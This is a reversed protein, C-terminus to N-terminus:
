KKKFKFKLGLLRLVKHNYENKISFIKQIFSPKIRIAILQEGIYNLQGRMYNLENKLYEVQSNMLEINFENQQEPPLMKYIELFYNLKSGGQNIYWENMCNRFNNWSGFIDKYTIAATMCEQQLNKDKLYSIVNAFGLIWSRCKQRESMYNEAYGRTLSLDEADLAEDDNFHIGNFVIPKSLVKIKGHNNIVNITLVSQQFATYIADYMNTMVGDTILNAKYIGAPVFTLQFIQYAKNEKQGSPFVYDSLCIIDTNEKALHEVEFWNSFDYRDDDCLVWVYDKGSSAGMEYARSINANGGINISHKIHKLNPHKKCYEEILESTGDCSANDLITIGFTKIPSDDALISDLNYKLKRKRNYTILMIQIKEKLPFVFKELDSLLEDLPYKLKDEESVLVNYQATFLMKTKEWLLYVNSYSYGRVAHFFIKHWNLLHEVKWSDSKDNTWQNEHIRVNFMKDDYFLVTNGYNSLTVLYPWDFFKGYKDSEIPLQKLLDVKYIATQMAIRENIYMYKAFEIQSEFLYHEDSAPTYDIENESIFNKTKTTIFAINEYKNLAQLACELYKCNLIDDDHFFMVYKSQVINKVNNICEILGGQSKYETVGYDKFSSIVESTEVMNGNNFVTIKPVGATQNVLSQISKKLFEPRNYTPIYVEIDDLTYTM